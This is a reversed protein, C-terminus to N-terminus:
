LLQDNLARLVRKLEQELLDLHVCTLSFAGKIEYSIIKTVAKTRRKNKSPAGPEILCSFKSCSESYKSHFRMEM